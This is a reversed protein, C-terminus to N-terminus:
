KIAIKRGGTIYLGAPLQSRDKGVLRGDITYFLADAANDSKVAAIATENHNIFDFDIVGNAETINDLSRDWKDGVWPAYNPLKDTDSLSTKESTGPFPDGALQAYYKDYTYKGTEPDLYATMVMLFGDAPVVTMRPKGLVDNPKDGDAVVDSAYNVHYVLLGHGKQRANLKTKQINELMLYERNNTQATNMIRYAKGGEDISALQSIHQTENLTEIEMWGMAEREWATYATPANGNILYEGADMLSWFEMAQNSAYSGDTPYLDPLGMVHSFEHCFLGIGNISTNGALGGMENILNYRYIKAGDLTLSTYFAHPWPWKEDDNGSISSSYGAFLICVADVYGDGNSDYKPDKFNVEDDVMRCATKILEQSNSTHHFYSIDQEITIPGHIEFQPRFQGFSCGDFYDAVSEQLKDEGNKMTSPDGIGNLYYNFSAVPDEVTFPQDKFQVLIVVATPTGSHPFYRGSTSVPTHRTPAKRMTNSANTLFLSRDQRSIAAQEAATRQQPAHALLSTASLSKGDATEAVYYANGKQVLLVDDTTTYWSVHEDGHLVVTLLTGDPQTITVPMPYAKAAHMAAIALVVM